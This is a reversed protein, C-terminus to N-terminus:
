LLLAQRRACLKAATRTYNCLIICPQKASQRLSTLVCCISVILDSLRSQCDGEPGLRARRIVKSLQCAVYSHTTQTFRM